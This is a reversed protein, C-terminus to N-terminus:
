ISGASPSVYLQLLLRKYWDLAIIAQKYMNCIAWDKEIVKEVSGELEICM